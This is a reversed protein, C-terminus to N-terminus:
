NIKVLGGKVEAMGSGDVTVQAGKLEAGSSGEATLTAGSKLDLSGSSELKGDGSATLELNAETQASIDESAEVQLTKQVTISLSGGVEITLDGAVKIQMANNASDIWISNEGTQDVILISPEDESDNLVIKHGSRSTISRVDNKGEGDMEEPPPDDANWLTGVVYPRSLEGHEFAVLVEDGVDPILWIGRESGAM